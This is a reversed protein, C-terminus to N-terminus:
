CRDPVQSGASLLKTARSGNALLQKSPCSRALELRLIRSILPTTNRRVNCVIAPMGMDAQKVIAVIQEISFRKRKM